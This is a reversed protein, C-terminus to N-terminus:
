FSAGLTFVLGSFTSDAGLIVINNVEDSEAYSTRRILYGVDFWISSFQLRTALGVDFQAMTTDWQETSPDTEVTSVGIGAGLRVPLSWRFDDSQTLEIDPAFELRPGFSSWTLEEGGLNEKLGYGRFFFGFRLPLPSEEAGLLATGHLFLEGDTAEGTAVPGLPEFLDDDSAAGEIRIGGGIKETFMAEAGLAFYGASTKDDLDTGDTKHEMKGGGFAVYAKADHATSCAALLVIPLSLLRHLNKRM